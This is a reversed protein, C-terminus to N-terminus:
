RCCLTSRKKIEPINLYEFGALKILQVERFHCFLDVDTGVQSSELIELLELRFVDVSNKTNLRLLIVVGM